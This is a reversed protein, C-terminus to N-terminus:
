RRGETDALKLANSIKNKTMESYKRKKYCEQSCYKGRNTNKENLRHQKILFKKHCIICKRKISEKLRHMSSHEGFKLKELNEKSDNLRNKDKHHIVYDKTVIDDHYTEYAVISRLVYGMKNDARHHNPSYVRMRGSADIYGDNFNNLSWEFHKRKFCGDNIM